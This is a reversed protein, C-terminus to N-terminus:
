RTDRIDDLGDSGGGSGSGGGSTRHPRERVQAPDSGTRTVRRVKTRVPPPPSRRIPEDRTPTFRIPSVDRPALAGAAGTTGPDSPSPPIPAIVERKVPVSEGHTAPRRAAPPSPREGSSVLGLVVAVLVALAVVTAGTAIVRRRRQSRSPPALPERRLVSADYTPTFLRETDEAANPFPPNSVPAPTTQPPVARPPVIAEAIARVPVGARPTIEDSELSPKRSAIGPPLQIPPVPPGVEVDIDVTRM